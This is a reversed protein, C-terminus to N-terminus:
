INIADFAVVVGKLALAEVLKPPTIKNSKNEVKPQLILRRKVLYATVLTIAKHPESYSNRESLLYSGRLVKGDM